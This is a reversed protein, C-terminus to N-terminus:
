PQQLAHALGGLAGACGAVPLRAVEAVVDALDIDPGLVVQNGRGEGGEREQHAQQNQHERQRQDEGRREDAQDVTKHPPVHAPEACAPFGAEDVVARLRAQHRQGHQRPDRVQGQRDRHM